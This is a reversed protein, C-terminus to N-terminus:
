GNISYLIEVEYWTVKEPLDDFLNIFAINGQSFLESQASIFFNM